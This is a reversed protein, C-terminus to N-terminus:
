NDIIYLAGIECTYAITNKQENVEDWKLWNLFPFFGNLITCRIVQAEILKYIINYHHTYTRTYEVWLLLLRQTSTLLAITQTGRSWKVMENETRLNWNSFHFKEISVHKCMSKRKEKKFPCFRLNSIMIRTHTYPCIPPHNCLCFLCAIARILERNIISLSLTNSRCIFLGSLNISCCM